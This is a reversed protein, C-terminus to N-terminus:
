LHFSTDSFFTACYLFSNRFELSDFNKKNNTIRDFGNAQTPLLNMMLNLLRNLLTSERLSNCKDQFEFNRLLKPAYDNTSQENDFQLWRMHWRKLMKNIDYSCSYYTFFLCGIHIFPINLSIIRSDLNDIFKPTEDLEFSFELKKHAKERKFYQNKSQNLENFPVDMSISYFLPKRFKM